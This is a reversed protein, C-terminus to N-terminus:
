DAKSRRTSRGVYRRVKRAFIRLSKGHEAVSTTVGCRGCVVRQGDTSLGPDFCRVCLAIGGQVKFRM